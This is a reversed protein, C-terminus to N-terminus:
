PYPFGPVGTTYVIRWAGRERRLHFGATAPDELLQINVTAEDGVQRVVKASGLDYETVGSQAQQEFQAFPHKKQSAATLLDYADRYRGDYLAELYAVVVQSPTRSQQPSPGAPRPPPHSPRLRPPEARRACGALLILLLLVLCLARMPQM